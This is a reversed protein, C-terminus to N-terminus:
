AGDNKGEREILGSRVAVPNWWAATQCRHCVHKFSTLDRAELTAPDIQSTRDAKAGVIGGDSM